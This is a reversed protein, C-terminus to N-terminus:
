NADRKQFLIAAIIATALLYASVLLAAKGAALMNPMNNLVSNLATFPLYKTNEHLLLGLLSEITGPVFLITIIAGVQNRIIMALLLAFMSYGWGYFIARWALDWVPLSQPVVSLGKLHWGLEALLPSLTGFIVSAVIVFGSV